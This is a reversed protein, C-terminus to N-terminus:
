LLADDERHSRPLAARFRPAAAEPPASLPADSSWRGPPMEPLAVGLASSLRARADRYRIFRADRAPDREMAVDVLWRVFHTTFVQQAALDAIVNLIEVTRRPYFNRRGKRRVDLKYLASWYKINRVTIGTEAVVDELTLEEM